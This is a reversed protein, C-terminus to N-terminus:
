KGINRKLGDVLRRYDGRELKKAARMFALKPQGYVTAKKAPQNTTPKHEM